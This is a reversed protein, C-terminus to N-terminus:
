GRIPPTPIRPRRTAPDVDWEWFKQSGDEFCTSVFFPQAGHHFDPGTTETDLGVAGLAGAVRPM